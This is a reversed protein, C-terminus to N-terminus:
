RPYQHKFDRLYPCFGVLIAANDYYILKVSSVIGSNYWIPMTFYEKASIKSEKLLDDIELKLDCQVLAM